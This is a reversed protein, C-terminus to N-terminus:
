LLAVLLWYPLPRERVAISNTASDFECMIHQTYPHTSSSTRQGLWGERLSSFFFVIIVVSIQYVHSTFSLYSTEHNRLDFYTGQYPRIRVEHVVCLQSVLKYTLTEPVSNDRQGTSSWYSSTQADDSYEPYPHLTHIISEGPYNDTSSAGIAEGICSRDLMPEHVLERLLHRYIREESEINQRFSSGSSGAEKVDRALDTEVVEQFMRVEPCEQLCLGKWLQGEVVTQVVSPDVNNCIMSLLLIRSYIYM